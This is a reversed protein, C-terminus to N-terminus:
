NPSRVPTLGHALCNTYEIVIMERMDAARSECYRSRSQAIPSRSHLQTALAGGGMTCFGLTGGIWMRRRMGVEGVSLGLAMGLLTGSAAIGLIWGTNVLPVVQAANQCRRLEKVNRRLADKRQRECELTVARVDLDKEGHNATGTNSASARGLVAERRFRDSDGTKSFAGWKQMASASTMTAIVGSLLCLAQFKSLQPRAM